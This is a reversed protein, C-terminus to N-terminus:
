NGQRTLHVVLRAPRTDSIWLSTLVSSVISVQIIALEKEKANEHESSAGDDTCDSDPDAEKLRRTNKGM